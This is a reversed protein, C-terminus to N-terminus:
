KWMKNQYVGSQRPRYKCVPLHVQVYQYSPQFSATISVRRGAAKYKCALETAERETMPGQMFLGLAM